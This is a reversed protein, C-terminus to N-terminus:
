VLCQELVVAWVQGVQELVRRPEELEKLEWLGQQKMQVQQKSQAQQEWLARLFM